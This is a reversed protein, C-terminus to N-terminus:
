CQRFITRGGWPHIRYRVAMVTTSREARTLVETIGVMDGRGYEEVLSKKDDRQQEVARLRGNLVILLSDSKEGQRCGPVLPPKAGSSNQQTTHVSLDQLCRYWFIDLIVLVM